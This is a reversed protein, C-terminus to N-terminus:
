AAQSGQELLREIDRRKVYVKRLGEPCVKPVQRMMADAAAETVGLWRRIGANDVLEGALERGCGPCCITRDRAL